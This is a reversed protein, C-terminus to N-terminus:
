GTNSRRINPFHDLISSSRSWIEDRGHRIDTSADDIYRWLLILIDSSINGDKERM